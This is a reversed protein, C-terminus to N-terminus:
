GALWYRSLDNIHSVKVFLRNEHVMPHFTSTRFITHYFQEPKVFM